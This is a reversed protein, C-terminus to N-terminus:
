TKKNLSILKYAHEAEIYKINENLNLFDKFKLNKINEYDDHYVVNKKKRKLLM